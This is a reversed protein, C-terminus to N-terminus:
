GVGGMCGEGYVGGRGYVGGGEGDIQVSTWQHMEAVAGLAM